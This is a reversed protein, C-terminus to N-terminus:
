YSEMPLNPVSVIFPRDFGSSEQDWTQNIFYEGSKLIEENEQIITESEQSCSVLSILIILSQFIKM